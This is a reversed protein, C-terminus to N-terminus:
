SIPWTILALTLELGDETVRHNSFMGGANNVLVDIRQEAAAIKSAVRKMESVRSLDAYYAAHALGPQRERLRALSAEGRERNRAVLVPRM